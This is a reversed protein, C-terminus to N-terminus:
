EVVLGSRLAFRVLSAVDHIRLRDMLQARHTEITKPSLKLMFAIEKTSKGEAILQLVERQRPTLVELPGPPPPLRKLFRDVVSRSIAPSLFLEGRVVAKIAAELEGTSADKLLYGAAGAQLSQLVYEESSHMSLMIVRTGPHDASIHRAAELGNLGAMAIDMLVVHPKLRAVLALADRGEAAEGIVKVDSVKNLLSRIGARVLKHDDVLIVTIDM